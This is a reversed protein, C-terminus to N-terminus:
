EEYEEYQQAEYRSFRRVTPPDLQQSLEARLADDEEYTYPARRVMPNRLSGTVIDPNRRQGELNPNRRIQGTQQQRGTRGAQGTQVTQQRRGTQQDPVRGRLYETEPDNARSPSRRTPRSATSEGAAPLSRHVSSDALPPSLGPTSDVVRRPRYRHASQRPFARAAPQEEDDPRQLSTSPRAVSPKRASTSRLAGTQGQQAENLAARLAATQQQSRLTGTQQNRFPRPQYGPFGPFYEPDPPLQRPAAPIKGSGAQGTRRPKRAVPSQAPLRPQVPVPLYREPPTQYMQQDEEEYWIGEEALVYKDAEYEYADAQAEEYERRYGRGYGREYQHVQALAVAEEEQSRLREEHRQSLHFFLTVSIPISILLAALGGILGGLVWSNLTNGFWLVVGAGVVLVLAVLALRMARADKRLAWIGDM